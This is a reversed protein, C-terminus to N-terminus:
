PAKKEILKKIYAEFERRDIQGDRNTDIEDFIKFLPARSWCSSLV